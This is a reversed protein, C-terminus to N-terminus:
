PMFIQTDLLYAMFAESSIKGEQAALLQQELENRPEFVDNM